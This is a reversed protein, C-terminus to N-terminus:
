GPATRGHLWALRNFNYALNALALKAGARAMDVCGLIVPECRDKALAARIETLVRHCAESDEELALVPIDAARVRRCRREM